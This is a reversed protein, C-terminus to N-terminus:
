YTGQVGAAQADERVVAFTSARLAFRVDPAQATVLRYGESLLGTEREIRTVQSWPIYMPDHCFSLIVPMARLYLGTRDSAIVIGGNYGIWGRFVGYGLRIKPKPFTARLPYAGALTQWGSVRSFLYILAVPLLGLALIPLFKAYSM